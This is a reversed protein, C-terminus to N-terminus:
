YPEEDYDANSVVDAYAEAQASVYADHLDKVVNGINELKMSCDFCHWRDSHSFMLEQGVSKGCIECSNIEQYKIFLDKFDVNLRLYIKTARRTMVECVVGLYEEPTSFTWSHGNSDLTAIDDDQEIFIQARSNDYDLERKVTDYNNVKKILKDDTGYRVQLKYEKGKYKWYKGEIIKM